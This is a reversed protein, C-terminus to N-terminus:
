KMNVAANYTADVVAAMKNFDLTEITDSPKHYNPNRLFSTDNIMVAPFNFQWYNRHDSLGALGVASPFNILQVDINAKGKMLGFVKRSYDSQKELGVVIIFNGTNPYLKKLEDSPFGQSNPEDSFYGIMEFCLMGIVPINNQKLYKAHIFSGMQQTAFYPPEELNYAVFDIRYDLEVKSNAMLRAIELLGAVASANDDAGPQEGCVDYHAGIILREKKELNYSAIVNKYEKGEATWKQEETVLGAKEFEDKIYSAAKALSELNDSNRPPNLETLFRVDTKLRDSNAKM